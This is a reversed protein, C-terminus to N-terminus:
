GRKKARPMRVNRVEAILLGSLLIVVATLYFWLVLVIIGALQGYLRTYNVNSVYDAFLLSVVQWGIASFLAGSWVERFTLRENPVIKYFLLFFSFLFVSGLGWKVTPWIYIWGQWDDVTGARSVVWHLGSEIFPLFLSLPVLTMFLLTVGLDRLLGKWYPLKSKIGNAENLARALAQVAMSSIWFAAILSLSLVRGKDAALINTVNDEILAFSDGPAFPRLFDLIQQADVPFFSILSLIFLLFPFVSLLLYYATQAAEDFFREAFFRVFVRKAIKM